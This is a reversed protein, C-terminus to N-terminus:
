CFLADICCKEVVLDFSGDEFRDEPLACADAVAYELISSKYNHNDAEGNPLTKLEEKLAKGRLAMHAVCCPSIDTAIQFKYGQRLMDEAMPSNGVGLHLVEANKRVGEVTEFGANLQQMQTVDLEVGSPSVADKLQLASTIFGLESDVLGAEVVERMEKWEVCWDFESEGQEHITEKYEQDWYHPTGFDPLAGTASDRVLRDVVDDSNM